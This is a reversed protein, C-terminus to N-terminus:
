VHWLIEKELHLKLYFFAELDKSLSLERLSTATGSHSQKKNYIVFWKEKAVKNNYMFTSFACLKWAGAQLEKELM